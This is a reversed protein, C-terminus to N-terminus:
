PTLPGWEPLLTSRDAASIVSDGNLNGVPARGLTALATM